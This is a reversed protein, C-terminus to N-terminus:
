ILTPLATKLRSARCIVCHYFTQKLMRQEHYAELAQYRRVEDHERFRADLAAPVRRTAGQERWPCARSGGKALTVLLPTLQETPVM